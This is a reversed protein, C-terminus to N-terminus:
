QDGGDTDTDLLAGAIQQQLEEVAQRQVLDLKTDIYYRRERITGYLLGMAEPDTQHREYLAQLRRLFEAPELDTCRNRFALIKMLGGYTKNIQETEFRGRIEAIKRMEEDLMTDYKKIKERQGKLYEHWLKLMEAIPEYGAWYVDRDILKEAAAAQPSGEGFLGNVLVTLMIDPSAGRDLTEQMDAQLSHYKGAAIQAGLPDLQEQAQPATRMEQPTPQQQAAYQEINM